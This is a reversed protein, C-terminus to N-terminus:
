VTIFDKLYYRVGYKIFYSEGKANSRIKSKTTKEENSFASLVYDDIGYKIDTIGLALTNCIGKVAIFKM